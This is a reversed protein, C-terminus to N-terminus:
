LSAVLAERTIKSDIEPAEFDLLRILDPVKCLLHNDPDHELLKKLYIYSPMYEQDISKMLLELGKNFEDGNDNVKKDILWRGCYYQAFACGKNACERLKDFWLKRENSGRGESQFKLLAYLATSIIDNKNNISLNSLNLMVSDLDRKTVKPLGAEHLYFAKSYLYTLLRICSVDGQKSGSLAFEFASKFDKDRFATKCASSLNIDNRNITNLTIKNLDALMDDATQYRADPNSEAAKAIISEMESSLTSPRNAQERKATLNRMMCGISYIDSNYSKLPLAQMIEPALYTGIKTVHANYPVGKIRNTIGIRSTGFDGLIYRAEGTRSTDIFINQEKVDRHLIQKSHVFSLAKCMAKLMDLTDKMTMKPIQSYLTELKPMVILFVSHEKEASVVYETSYIIPMVNECERCEQMALIEQKSYDYKEHVSLSAIDPTFVATDIVKLVLSRNLDGELEFISAFSSRAHIQNGLVLNPCNNEKKLQEFAEALYKM